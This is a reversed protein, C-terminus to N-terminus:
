LCDTLFSRSILLLLRIAQTRFKGSEIVASRYTQVGFSAVEFPVLAGDIKLWEGGEAQVEEASQQSIRQNDGNLEDIKKQILAALEEAAMTTFVIKKKKGTNLHVILEAGQKTAKTEVDKIYTYVWTGVPIQGDFLALGMSGVGLRCLKPAKRLFKQGVPYTLQGVVGETAKRHADM